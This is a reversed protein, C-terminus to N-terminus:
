KKAFFIRMRRYIKYISDIIKSIVNFIKIKLNLLKDPSSRKKTYDYELDLSYKIDKIKTAEVYISIEQSNDFGTFYYNNNNRLKQLADKNYLDYHNNGDTITNIQRMEAIQSKAFDSRKINDFGWKKLLIELMGFDFGYTHAYTGLAESFDPQVALTQHGPSIITDLFMGGISLDENTHIQSTRFFSKDNNIYAKATKELDPTSIRLLGNKKLIRNFESFTKELRFHPVHEIMHSTYVIEYNNSKLKNDWCLGYHKWTENKKGTGNDLVDWGNKFWKFGAGINIKKNM